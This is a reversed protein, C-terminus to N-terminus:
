IGRKIVHCHKGNFFNKLEEDKVFDKKYNKMKPYHQAHVNLTSAFPM